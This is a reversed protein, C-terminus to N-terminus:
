RPLRLADAMVDSESEDRLARCFRPMDFPRTCRDAAPRGSLPGRTGGEGATLDTRVADHQIM